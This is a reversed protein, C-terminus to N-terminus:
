IYYYIFNYYTFKFSNLQNVWKPLSLYHTVQFKWFVM